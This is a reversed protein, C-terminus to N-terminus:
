GVLINLFIFIYITIYKMCEDVFKTLFLYKKNYHMSIFFFFLHFKVDYLEVDTGRNKIIIVFNPKQKYPFQQTLATQNFYSKPLNKYVSFLGIIVDLGLNTRLVLQKYAVSYPLM